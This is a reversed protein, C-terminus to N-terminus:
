LNWWPKNTEGIMEFLQKNFPRYFARLEDLVRPEIRPHPRGKQESLCKVQSSDIPKIICAFGGQKRSPDRVFHEEKIVSRLGLFREVRNLEVSPSSILLEGNVFLFQDRPFRELWPKLHTAYLGNRIIAWDSRVLRTNNSIEAHRKSIHAKFAMQEFRQSDNMQLSQSDRRARINLKKHRWQSQVYESVARVVPDRMVVILKLNPNMQYAREPVRKDVLYKPTKEITIQEESSLPMQERYWDFGMHYFRDFFHTEAGATTVNPHAGIFKLLARTGCKKAGIIIAQPLRKSLSDNNLENIECGIKSWTLAISILIILRIGM